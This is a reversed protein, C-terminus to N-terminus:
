ISDERRTRRRELSIVRNTLATVAKQLSQVERHLWGERVETFLRAHSVLEALNGDFDDADGKRPSDAWEIIYPEHGLGVLREAIANMHRYGQDDNDPWLLIQSGDCIPRLVDDSPCASAGCATGVARVGRRILSEAAKEGETVIIPTFKFKLLDTGYLPLNEVGFGQLGDEGDMEWRYKKSGDSYEVREHIAVTYGNTDKILYPIRKTETRNPDSLFLDTMRIGLAGTIADASCGAHCHVLIKGESEGISLSNVRDEHAPCRATFGAGNNQIGELMATIQDLQM